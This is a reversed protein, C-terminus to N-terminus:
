LLLSIKNLKLLFIKNALTTLLSNSHSYTNTHLICMIVRLGLLILKTKTCM